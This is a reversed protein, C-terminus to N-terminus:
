SELFTFAVLRVRDRRLLLGALGKYKGQFRALVRECETSEQVLLGQARRAVSGIRLRVNPCAELNKLWQSSAGRRSFCYIVKEEQVYWIATKRLKGTKRGQTTLVLVWKAILFGLGLGYVLLAWNAFWRRLRSPRRVKSINLPSITM